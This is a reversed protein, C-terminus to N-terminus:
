LVASLLRQIRKLRQYFELQRNHYQVHGFPLHITSGGNELGPEVVNKEGQQELAETIRNIPVLFDLGQCKGDVLNKYWLINAWMERNKVAGAAFCLESIEKIKEKLWKLLASALKEDYNRLVDFVLRNHQEYAQQRAKAGDVSIDTADLIDKSDEAEGIFLALARRVNEPVKKSYQAEYVAVFNSSKVLYAQGAAEKKVSINTFCGGKWLVRVDTKEATKGGIISEVKPAHRGGATAAVFDSANMGVRECFHARFDANNNLEEAIMEENLHGSLKPISGFKNKLIKNLSLMKPLSHRFQLKNEHQQLNGFPLAITSGIQLKDNPCILTTQWEKLKMTKAINSAVHKLDFIVFNDDAANGAIYWMYDAAENRDKADGYAFCYLFIKDCNQRLWTLLRLPMKEDYGYMSALTLRHYYNIEVDNRVRKGVYDVPISSLIETQKPHSGSFLLLGNKVEEPISIGFQASFGEMFSTTAQLHIQSSVSITTRFNTHNGDKWYIRFNTKAPTARGGPVINDVYSALCKGAVARDFDIARRSIAKCVKRRFSIDNNLKQAIYVPYARGEKGKKSGASARNINTEGPFLKRKSM